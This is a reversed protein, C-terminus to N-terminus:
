DHFHTGGVSKSEQALIIIGYQKTDIHIYIYHTLIYLPPAKSRYAAAAARTTRMLECRAAKPSGGLRFSKQYFEISMVRMVIVDDCMM